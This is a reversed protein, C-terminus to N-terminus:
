CTAACVYTFRVRLIMHAVPRVRELARLARALPPAVALRQSVFLPQLELARFGAALADARIDAVRYQRPNLDFVFKKDTYGRVREFFARRDRAYYIARFCTTVAVHNSPVYDNLDAHVVDRGRALATGVMDPDADVGVYRVGAPLYDALGGDGCALDLVTDGAELQPGLRVITEARQALYWAPDGYAAETWDNV